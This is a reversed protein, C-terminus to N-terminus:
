TKKLPKENLLLSINHIGNDGENLIIKEFKRITSIVKKSLPQTKNLDLSMNAKNLTIDKMM